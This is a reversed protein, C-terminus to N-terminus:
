VNSCVFYSLEPGQPKPSSSKKHKEWQIDIPALPGRAPGKQGWPCPQCSKYPPGSCMAVRLIHFSQAKHNQLLLNKKGTTLRHSNDTAMSVLTRFRGPGFGLM